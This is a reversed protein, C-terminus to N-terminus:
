HPTLNPGKTEALSNLRGAEATSFRANQNVRPERDTRVWQRPRGRVVILLKWLLYVPFFVLNTGYKWPLKLAFFPAVAYVCLTATMFLSAACLLWRLVGQGHLGPSAFTCTNLAVVLLYVIVLWGLSPITLELFSVSKAWLGLDHSLFLPRVFKNRTAQRGFEWRRRQSAAAPSQTGPMAGYVRSKALFKIYEGTIRISWSYDIDEVLGYSKWPRHKLGRVSFCM